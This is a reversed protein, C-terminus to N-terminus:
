ATTRWILVNALDDLHTRVNLVQFNAIHKVHTLVVHLEAQFRLVAQM